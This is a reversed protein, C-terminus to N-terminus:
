EDDKEQQFANHQLSTPYLSNSKKTGRSSPCVDRETSLAHRRAGLMYIYIEIGTSTDRLHQNMKSFKLTWRGHRSRGDAMVAYSDSCDTKNHM